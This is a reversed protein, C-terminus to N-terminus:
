FCIRAGVISGHFFLDEENNVRIAVEAPAGVQGNNFESTTAVQGPALALRNLWFVRYGGYLRICETLEYEAGVELQFLTSADSQGDEGVANTATGPNVARFSNDSSNSFLGFVADGTVRLRDLELIVAHASIQGGALTNETEWNTASDLGFYSRYSDQFEM